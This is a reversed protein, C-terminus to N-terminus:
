EPTEGVGADDVVLANEDVRGTRLAYVRERVDERRAGPDSDLIDDVESEILDPAIEVDPVSAREVPEHTVYGDLIRLNKERAVRLVDGRDSVWATPDGPYNALGSLYYKGTTSVGAAEARARLWTGQAPTAAFQDAGSFRGENFIADTKIGPFSRLALCAALRRACGNARCRLYHGLRRPEACGDEIAEAVLPDTETTGADM